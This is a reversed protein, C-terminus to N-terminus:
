LQQSQVPVLILFLEGMKQLCRNLFGILDLVQGVFQKLIKNHRFLCLVGIVLFGNGGIHEQVAKRVILQKIQFIGTKLHLIVKVLLNEGFGAQNVNFKYLSHQVIKQGVNFFVCVGGKRHFHLRVFSGPLEEEPKVVDRREKTVIHLAGPDADLGTLFDHPFM